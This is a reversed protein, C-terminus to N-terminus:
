AGKSPEQKEKLTKSATIPQAPQKRLSRDVAALLEALQFPKSLTEVAGLRTAIRLFQINLTRSVALVPVDVEATRLARILELGDMEPMALDTIILDFRKARCLRLVEKASGVTVLDHGQLELIEKILARIYQDDDVVLISSM